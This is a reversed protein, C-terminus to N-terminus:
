PEYIMTGSMPMEGKFRWPEEYSGCGALLVIVIGSLIMITYIVLKDGAVMTM